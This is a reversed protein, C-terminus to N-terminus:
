PLKILLEKVTINMLQSVSKLDQYEYISNVNKNNYYSHKIKIKHGEFEISQYRRQLVSRQMASRRIGITTTSKFLIEECISLKSDPIIVNLVFAPRSKKVIVSQVYVDLAGVGYLRDFVDEFLQPNMDDITCEIKQIPQTEEIEQAVILRLVNARGKLIRTGCGYGIKAFSTTAMENSFENALVAVIAAGTPTSMEKGTDVRKTPLGTIIELTAPVPVAMNGHACHVHGSGLLFPSAVIKKPNLYDIALCAGVVDAIADLAGVEHFHIKNVTTGHVKAEAKAILKFIALANKTVSKSLNADVIIKTIDSLNRHIHQHTHSHHHHEDAKKTKGGSTDEVIFLKGAIGGNVMKKSRIKLGPVNLKDIGEKIIKIPVGLDICAGVFMDGAVGSCMDIYLM